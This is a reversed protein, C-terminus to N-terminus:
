PHKCCTAVCGEKKIASYHGLKYEMRELMGCGKIFGPSKRHAIFDYLCKWHTLPCLKFQIENHIGCFKSLHYWLEPMGGSLTHQMETTIHDTLISPSKNLM